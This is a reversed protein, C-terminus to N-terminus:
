YDQCTEGGRRARAELMERKARADPDKALLLLDNVEGRIRRLQDLYKELSEGRKIGDRMKGMEQLVVVWASESDKQRRERRKRCKASCTTKSALHLGEFEKKCESCRGGEIWEYEQRDTQSTSWDCVSRSQPTITMIM